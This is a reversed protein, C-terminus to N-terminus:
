HKTTEAPPPSPKGARIDNVINEALKQSTDCTPDKIRCQAITMKCGCTCSESNMRKLALKKQAPSLGKFDVGPLDIARVANKLFIQGTDEFTEIKADVPMNLLARIETDYVEIPYLGEHKQVVGGDTNVLFSTPLAPVGGYEHSIEETGMVVPYTMGVKKVFERVERPPDDDMSIGIIALQNPYRAALENLEPIEERCPECWTAWFTLLVVKGRLNATSIINGDLDNVLFPPIPSPHSAFRIVSPSDDQADKGADASDDRTNGASDQETAESETQVSATHSTSAAASVNQGKLERTLRAAALGTLLVATLAFAALALIWPKKMENKENDTLLAGPVVNHATLGRTTSSVRHQVTLLVSPYGCIQTAFPHVHREPVASGSKIQLPSLQISSFSGVGSFDPSGRPSHNCDFPGVVHM